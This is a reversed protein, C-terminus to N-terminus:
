AARSVAEDLTLSLPAQGFAPRALGAIMALSLLFPELRRRM